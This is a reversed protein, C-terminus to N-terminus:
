WKKTIPKVPVVKRRKSIGTYRLINFGKEASEMEFYKGLRNMWQLNTKLNIHANRGDPLITKSPTTSIVFFVRKLSLYSIHDLLTDLFEEEVHELVDICFVYDHPKPLASFEPVAPDYNTMNLNRGIIRGLMGKGSGYDLSTGRFCNHKVVFECISFISGAPGNGWEKDEEHLTELQELYFDSLLKGAM